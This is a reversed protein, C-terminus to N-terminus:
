RRCRGMLSAAAEDVFVVSRGARRLVRAVPLASDRRYIAQHIAGAKAEGFAM